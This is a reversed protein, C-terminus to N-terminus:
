LSPCSLCLITETPCSRSPIRPTSIADLKLLNKVKSFIVVRGVNDLNKLPGNELLGHLSSVTNRNLVLELRYSPDHFDTVASQLNDKGLKGVVVVNVVSGGRRAKWSLMEAGRYLVKWAADVEPSFNLVNSQRGMFFPYGRPLSPTASISWPSLSRAPQTAPPEESLATTAKRPSPTAPFTPAIKGSCHLVTPFLRLGPTQCRNETTTMLKIPMIPCIAALRYPCNPNNFHQVTPNTKTSREYVTPSSHPDQYLATSLAPDHQWESDQVTFGRDRNLYIYVMQYNM